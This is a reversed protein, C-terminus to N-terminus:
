SSPIVVMVDAERTMIFMKGDIMQPFSRAKDYYVVDGPNIGKTDTGAMVVTAKHGRMMQTEKATFVLSESAKEVEKTDEVIIYKGIAIM